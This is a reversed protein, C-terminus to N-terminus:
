ARKFLGFGSLPHAVTERFVAEGEKPPDPDFDPSVPATIKSRPALGEGRARQVLADLGRKMLSQPDITQV